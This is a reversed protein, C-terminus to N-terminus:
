SSSFEQIIERDSKVFLKQAKFSTKLIRPLRLTAQFFGAFLALDINFIAKVFHYPLWFFHIFQLSLDTANIWVFIFQNRYAIKKVDYSTYHRKIAGKEHEHIM